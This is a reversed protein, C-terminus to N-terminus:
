TNQRWSAARSRLFSTLLAALLFLVAYICMTLVGVILLPGKPLFALTYALQGLIPGWYFAWKVRPTSLGSFLGAICLAVPYYHRFFGM